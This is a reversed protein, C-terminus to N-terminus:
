KSEEVIEVDDLFDQGEQTPEIKESQERQELFFLFAATLISLFAAAIVGKRYQNTM